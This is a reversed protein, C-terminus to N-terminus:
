PRSDAALAKTRRSFVSFDRKSLDTLTDAPFPGTALLTFDFSGKLEGHLVYQRHVRLFDRKITKYREPSLLHKMRIFLLAAQPADAHGCIAVVRSKYFHVIDTLCHVELWSIEPARAIAGIRHRLRIAPKLLACQLIAGGLTVFVVHRGALADPSRELVMGLVHTALSAGMSHSSILYEDADLELADSMTDACDELWRTLTPDDLSAVDSALEWDAFLHLTHLRESFPFFLKRFFAWAAPLSWLCNWLSLGSWWPFSALGLSAAVGAAVLLFPFIFFVGFRWAHRFYGTLGGNRVILAANVFGSAIRQMIPKSTREEVISNHDCIFITSSTQWGAGSSVASFHSASRLKQLPGIEASFGWLKASQSASRKFRSHHGRTNMREFGPFHVVVRRTVSETM